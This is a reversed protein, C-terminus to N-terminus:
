TGFYRSDGRLEREAAIMRQYYKNAQTTYEVWVSTPMQVTKGNNIFIVTPNNDMM